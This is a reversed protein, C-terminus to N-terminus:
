QLFTMIVRLEELSIMIPPVIKELFKVIYQGRRSLKLERIETMAM